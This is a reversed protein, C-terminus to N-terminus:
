PKVMRGKLSDILAACEPSRLQGNLLDIFREGERGALGADSVAIAYTETPHGITDRYFRTDRLESDLEAGIRRFRRNALKDHVFVDDVLAADIAHSDLASYLDDFTTYTDRVKFGFRRALAHAARQNTTDRMAGVSREAGLDRVDGIGSDLRGVLIQHTTYYGDTFRVGKFRTERETTKTMSSIVVDVEHEALRPLLEEWPLARWEVRIPPDIALQTSIRGALWSMLDVDLGELHGQPDLREFPGTLQPNIGVALRKTRRIREVTTADWTLYSFASAPGTALMDGNVVSGPVVRWFARRHGALLSSPFYYAQEEPRVVQRMIPLSDPPDAPFIQVVYSQLKTARGYHWRMPIEGAVIEAENAPSILVPVDTGASAARLAADTDQLQKATSRLTADTDQLQQKTRQLEEKAPDIWFFRDLSYVAAVVAVVFSVLVGLPVYFRPGLLVPTKPLEQRDSGTTELGSDESTMAGETPVITGDHGNLRTM